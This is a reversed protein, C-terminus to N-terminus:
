KAFVRYITITALFTYYAVFIKIGWGIADLLSPLDWFAGIPSILNRLIVFINTIWDWIPIANIVMGFTTLGLTILGVIGLNKLFNTM